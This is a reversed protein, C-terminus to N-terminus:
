FGRSHPPGPGIPPPATAGFLFFLKRFVFFDYNKFMRLGKLIPELEKRKVYIELIGKSYIRSIDMKLRKTDTHACEPIVAQNYGCNPTSVTQWGIVSKAFPTNTTVTRIQLCWCPKKFKTNTTGLMM